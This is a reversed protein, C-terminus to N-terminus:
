HHISTALLPEPSVVHRISTLVCSRYAAELIRTEEGSV